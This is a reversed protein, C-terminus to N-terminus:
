SRRVRTERVCSVREDAACSCDPLKQESTQTRVGEYHLEFSSLRVRDCNMNSMKRDPIQTTPKLSFFVTSSQVNTKLGTSLRQITKSVFHFEIIKIKKNENNIFSIDKKFAQYSSQM